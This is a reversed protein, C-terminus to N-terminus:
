RNVKLPVSIAENDRFLSDCRNEFLKILSEETQDLLIIVLTKGEEYPFRTAFEDLGNVGNEKFIEELANKTIKDIQKCKDDVLKGFFSYAVSFDMSDINKVALEAQLILTTDPKILITKPTMKGRKGEAPVLLKKDNYVFAM